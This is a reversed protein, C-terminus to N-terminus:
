LIDSRIDEHRRIRGDQNSGSVACAPSVWFSNALRDAVVCDATARRHSRPWAATSRWESGAGRMSGAVLHGPGPDPGTLRGRWPPHWRGSGARRRRAPPGGGPRRDRSPASAVHGSGVHRSAILASGPEVPSRRHSASTAPTTSRAACTAWVGTGIHVPPRSWIGRRITTGSATGSGARTARTSSRRAPWGHRRRGRLTGPLTQHEQRRRCGGDQRVPHSSAAPPIPAFQEDDATRGHGEGVVSRERCRRRRRASSRRRRLRERTASRWGSRGGIPDVVRDLAEQETVIRGRRDHEIARSEPHPHCRRPVQEHHLHGRGTDLPVSVVDDRQRDTRIRLDPPRM